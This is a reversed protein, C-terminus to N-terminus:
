PPLSVAFLMRFWQCGSLDDVGTTALLVKHLLVGVLAWNCEEICCCVSSCKLYFMYNVRMNLIDELDGHTLGQNVESSMRWRM